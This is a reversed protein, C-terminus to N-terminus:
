PTGVLDLAAATAQANSVLVYAGASALARGQRDLGQPDAGTGILSVVVDLRRGDRAAAARAAEIAPVHVSAPDAHAGHGLVVDVLSWGSARTPPATPSRM